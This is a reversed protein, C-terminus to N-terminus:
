RLPVASQIRDWVLKTGFGLTNDTMKIWDLRISHVKGEMALAFPYRLHYAKAAAKNDAEAGLLLVGRFQIGQVKLKNLKDPLITGALYPQAYLWPMHLSDDSTKFYLMEQAECYAYYCSFCHLAGEANSCCVSAVTQRGIFHAIHQLVSEMNALSRSAFSGAPWPAM